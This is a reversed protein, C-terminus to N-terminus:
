KSGSRAAEVRVGQHDLLLGTDRWLKVVALSFTETADLNANQAATLDNDANVVDQVPSEGAKAHKQYEERRQEAYKLSQEASHLNLRASMLAGMDAEVDNKIKWELSTIQNQAQETRISSKRYDNKAATNGLPVSFQLGASWFKGKGQGIQRYSEGVQSGTGSLGGSATVSLDPLTQHRAVEEQLKSMRLATRLQELDPRSKLASRVAQEETEPPEDKAPPDTPILHVKGEMGILYRLGAEQDRISREAAVLEKQRQSIAFELNAIDLKQKPGPKPRAKIEALLAKASGMATTKAEMGKRLSYLHNYSTVVALITDSVFLRFRELSDRQGSDALTIALETARRGSNKLLPQSITIAVSSQWTDSPLGTLASDANTYGSQTSASLTGGQPLNQSIGLSGVTSTSGFSEGPIFAMSRSATASLMPNYLSRSRAADTESMFTNLAENRVDLNNRIAREVAEKRSLDMKVPLGAGHGVAASSLLGLIVLIKSRLHM